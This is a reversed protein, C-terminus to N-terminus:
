RKNLLKHTKLYEWIIVVSLTGYEIFIITTSEKWVGALKYDIIVITSLSVLAVFAAASWRFRLPILVALWTLYWPHVTPAVIFFGFMVLVLSDTFETKRFYVVATWLVFLLACVAHVTGNDQFLPYLLHFVSGNFEWRESFIKLAEFPSSRGVVSPLYALVLVGLPIGFSLAKRWGRLARFASPIFIIPVLKIAASIGLLVLSGAHKARDWLLIFALMFPLGLADLHGDIMFQMIPLPCVAYLAIWSPPLGRRRLLVVLLALSAIEAALLPAKFGTVSEGFASFAARFYWEAVPPYLAKMDPHNVLRPVMDSHLSDLAPDSPAFRYPDIGHSQVKGDWIYRYVDDSAIPGAPLLTLRMVIGAGIFVAASRSGFVSADSRIIICLVIFLASNSVAAVVYREIPSATAAYVACYLLESLVLVLTARVASANM